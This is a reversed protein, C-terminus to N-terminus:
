MIKKLQLPLSYKNNAQDSDINNRTDSKNNKKNSLYIKGKTKYQKAVIAEAKHRKIM